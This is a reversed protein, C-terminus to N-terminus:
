ARCWRAGRTPGRLRAGLPDVFFGHDPPDRDLLRQRRRLRRAGPPAPLAAEDRLRLVAPLLPLPDATGCAWGGDAEVCLDDPM